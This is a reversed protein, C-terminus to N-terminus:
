GHDAFAIIAVPELIERVFITDERVDVEEASKGIRLQGRAVRSAFNKRQRALGFPKAEDVEFGHGAAFRDDTASMTARGFHDDVSDGSVEHLVAVCGLKGGGDLRQQGVRSECAFHARAAALTYLM